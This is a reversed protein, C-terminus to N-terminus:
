GQCFVEAYPGDAEQRDTVKGDVSVTCWTTRSYPGGYALIRALDADGYSHDSHEFSRGPASKGGKRDGDAFPIWWGVAMMPGDSGARVVVRHRPLSTSFGQGFDATFAGGGSGRLGELAGDASTPVASPTPLVSLKDSPTTTPTALPPGGLTPRDSTPDSGGSAGWVIVVVVLVALASLATTTRPNRRIWEM